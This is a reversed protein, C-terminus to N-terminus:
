NLLDEGYGYLAKAIMTMVKVRPMQVFDSEIKTHTTQKVAPKRVFGIQTMGLKNRFNWISERITAQVLESVYTANALFPFAAVVSAGVATPSPTPQPQVATAPYGVVENGL